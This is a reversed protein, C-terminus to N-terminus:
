SAPEEFSINRYLDALSITIGLSSLSVMSDLGRVRQIRWADDAQRTFLEVQPLDQEILLYEKLSPIQRYFYFKDGRDYGATTESLVEVILIPNTIAGQDDDEQDNNTCVVMSDPYVYRNGELIRLKMDSNFVICNKEKEALGNGLLRIVSAGLISHNKTGGAMAYISGNHYEYRTENEREIALYEDLTLKALKVAEM